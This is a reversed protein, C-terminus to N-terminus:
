THGQEEEIFAGRARLFDADSYPDVVRPRTWWGARLRPFSSIWGSHISRVGCQRTYAPTKLRCPWIPLSRRHGPIIIGRQAALQRLHTWHRSHIDLVHRHRRFAISSERDLATAHSGRRNIHNSVCLMCIRTLLGLLLPLHHGSSPLIYSPALDTTHSIQADSSALHSDLPSIDITVSISSDPHSPDVCCNRQARIFQVSVAPLDPVPRTDDSSRLAPPSFSHAACRPYPFVFSLPSFELPVHFGGTPGAM